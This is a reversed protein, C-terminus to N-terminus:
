PNVLMLLDMKTQEASSALLFLGAMIGINSWYISAVKKNDNVVLQVTFFGPQM